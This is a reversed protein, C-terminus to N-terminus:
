LRPQRYTVTHCLTVELACVEWRLRGSVLIVPMCPWMWSRRITKLIWMQDKTGKVILVMERVCNDALKGEDSALMMFVGDVRRQMVPYSTNKNVM